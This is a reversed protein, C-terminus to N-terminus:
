QKIMRVAASENGAQLVVAYIGSPLNPLKFENTYESKDYETRSLVIRNTGLNVISLSIGHKQLLSINTTFYGNNPNPYLDFSSILKGKSTAFRGNEAELAELVSIIASYYSSCGGLNATMGIEYTGPENFIISAIDPTQELLFAQMPIIWEISDPLPWSIDILIVSDGTFVESAMLFDAKLIDDSTSLNFSGSGICNQMDEFELQYFGPASLSVVRDESSFGNDSTWSFSLADIEPDLVLTQGNCIVRDELEITLPDAEPVVLLKAQKCNNIDTVMVSYEGASLNRLESSTGGEAWQISYPPTGGIATIRISGDSAGACSPSITIDNLIALKDPERLIIDFSASCGNEDLVTLQYNEAILDQIEPGISGNSWQYSLIGTGGMAIVSLQGDQDANCTPQTKDISLLSIVEPSPIDISEVSLCGNADKVQLAVVGATLNIATLGTQGDQWQIDYPEVGDTISITVSGNAGDSCQLGLVQEIIIVPGDSNTITGGITTTCGKDDTINLSYLGAPFDVLNPENSVVTGARNQWSYSYPPSGGTTSTEIGGDSQGCLAPLSKTVITQLDSPESIQIGPLQISCQNMDRVHVDYLGASLATFNPKFQWSDGGDISYEYPSIGGSAELEFSGDSYGFCSVNALVNSSASIVLPESLLISESIQCNNSDTILVSYSGASINTVDQTTEGNSWQFFYIGSGGQVDLSITGDSAGNCSVSYGSYDSTLQISSELLQPDSLTYAMVNSDCGNADTIIVSYDGSALNGIGATVAGNSWLYTYEGAGGSAAIVLEGNSEAFCAIPTEFFEGSVPIPQDVVVNNYAVCGNNDKVAVPYTGSNLDEFIPNSIFSSGGNISYLYPPIGNSPNQFELTGDALFSCSTSTTSVTYTISQPDEVAINTLSNVCSNEDKAYVVYTGATLLFTSSPQYTIGDLSYIIVGTGGTATVEVAGVDGPCIPNNIQTSIVISDAAPITFVATEMECGNADKVWATYTGSDYGNLINNNGFSGTQSKAFTFPPTGGSPIIEVQGDNSEPCLEAYTVFNTNIAEPAPDITVSVTSSECYQSDKVRLLYSVEPILNDFTPNTQYSNGNDISYEYGTETGGSIAVFTLSATEGSCNVTSPVPEAFTIPELADVILADSFIVDGCYSKNSEILLYYTGAGLNSLQGSRGSNISSTVFFDPNIDQKTYLNFIIEEEPIPDRDIQAVISGNNVGYCSSIITTGAIDLDPRAVGGVQYPNAVNAAPCSGLVSRFLVTTDQLGNVGFVDNWTFTIQNTNGPDNLFNQFSGGQVAYEWQYDSYGSSATLTIPDDKFYCDPVSSLSSDIEFNVPTWKVSYYLDLVSLISSTSARCADSFVIAETGFFRFDCNNEDMQFDFEIEGKPLDIFNSTFIIDDPDPSAVNQVIGEITITGGVIRIPTSSCYINNLIVEIKYDQSLARNIFSIFLILVILGTRVM